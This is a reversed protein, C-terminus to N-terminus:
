NGGGVKESFLAFNTLLLSIEASIKNKVGWKETAESPGSICIVDCLTIYINIVSTYIKEILKCIKRLKWSSRKLKDFHHDTM